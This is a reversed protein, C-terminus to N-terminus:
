HKVLSAPVSREEYQAPFKAIVMLWAILSFLFGAIYYDKIGSIRKSSFAGLLFTTLLFASYLVISISM